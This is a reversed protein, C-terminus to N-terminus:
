EVVINVPQTKGERLYVGNIQLSDITALTIILYLTDPYAAKEIDERSPEASGNPHSHYIAFLYEDNERIQRMADIQQKADLLFHREPNEAVNAIPYARTPKEEIGGILGCIEMDPSQQALKQLQEFLARPFQVM